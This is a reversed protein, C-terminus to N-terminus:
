PTVVANPKAVIGNARVPRQAFPRGIQVDMRFGGGRVTAGGSVVEKVPTAPAAEEKASACSAALLAAVMVRGISNRMARM